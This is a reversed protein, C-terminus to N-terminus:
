PPSSVASGPSKLGLQKARELDQHAQELWKQKQSLTGTDLITKYRWARGRAAFARANRPELQLIANARDIAIDPSAANELEIFLTEIQNSPAVKSNMSPTTTVQPFREKQCAIELLLLLVGALQPVRM